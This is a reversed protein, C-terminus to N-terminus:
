FDVPCDAVVHLVLDEDEDASFTVEAAGEPFRYGLARLGALFVTEVEEKTIEFTRVM